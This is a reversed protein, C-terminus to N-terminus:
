GDTRRNRNAQLIEDFRLRDKVGRLEETLMQRLQRIGPAGLRTLEIMRELRKAKDTLDALEAASLPEPRSAEM